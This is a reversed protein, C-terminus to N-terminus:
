GEERTLFEAWRASGDPLVEYDDSKHTYEHIEDRYCWTGCPWLIVDLSSPPRASM